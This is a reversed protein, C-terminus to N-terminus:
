PQRCYCDQKPSHINVLVGINPIVWKYTKSATSSDYAKPNAWQPSSTVPVRLIKQHRPHRLHVHLIRARSTFLGRTPPLPSPDSSTRSLSTTLHLIRPYRSTPLQLPASHNIRIDNGSEPKSRQSHASSLQLPSESTKQNIGKHTLEPNFNQEVCDIHATLVM